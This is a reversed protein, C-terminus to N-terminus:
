LNVYRHYRVFNAHVLWVSDLRDVMRGGVTSGSRRNDAYSQAIHVMEPLNLGTFLGDDSWAISLFVASRCVNPSTNSHEEKLTQSVCVLLRPLKRNRLIIM